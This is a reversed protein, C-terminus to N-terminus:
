QREAHRTLLDQRVFTKDCLHCKYHVATSHNLQHRRCETLGQTHVIPLDNLRLHEARTFIQLPTLLGFGSTANCSDFRRADQITALM